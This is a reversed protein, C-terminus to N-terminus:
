FNLNCHTVTNKPIFPSSFIITIIVCQIYKLTLWSCYCIEKLLSKPNMVNMNITTIKDNCIIIESFSQPWAGLILFPPNKKTALVVIAKAFHINM